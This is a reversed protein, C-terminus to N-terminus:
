GPKLTLLSVRVAMRFNFSVDQWNFLSSYECNWCCFKERGLHCKKETWYEGYSEVCLYISFLLWWLRRMGALSVALGISAKRMLKFQRWVAYWNQYRVLWIFIASKATVLPRPLQMISQSILLVAALPCFCFLKFPTNSFLSQVRLWLQRTNIQNDGFVPFIKLDTLDGRPIFITFHLETVSGGVFLVIEDDFDNRSVIENESCWVVYKGTCYEM